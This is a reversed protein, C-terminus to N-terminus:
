FSIGEVKQKSKKDPDLTKLTAMLSKINTGNFILQVTTFTILSIDSPYPLPFSINENKCFKEICLSKVICFNSFKLPTCFSLKVVM